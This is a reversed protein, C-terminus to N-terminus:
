LNTLGNEQTNLRNAQTIHISPETDLTSSKTNLEDRETELLSLNKLINLLKHYFMESTRSDYKSNDEHCSKLIHLSFWLAETDNTERAEQIIADLYGESSYFLFTWSLFLDKTHLICHVGTSLLDSLCEEDFACGLLNIITAAVNEIIGVLHKTHELAIFTIVNKGNIRGEEKLSNMTISTQILYIEESYNIRM